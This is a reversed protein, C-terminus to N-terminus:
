LYRYVGKYSHRGDLCGPARLPRSGHASKSRFELQSATRSRRAVRICIARRGDVMLTGGPGASASRSRVRRAQAASPPRHEEGSAPVSPGVGRDRPDPRTVRNAPPGSASRRAGAARRWRPAAARITQHDRRNRKRLWSTPARSSGGGGRSAANPPTGARGRLLPHKGGAATAAAM